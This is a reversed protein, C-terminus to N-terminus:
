FGRARLLLFLFAAPNRWRAHFADMRLRILGGPVFRPPEAALPVV